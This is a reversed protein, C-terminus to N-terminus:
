QTGGKENHLKEYALFFGNMFRKRNVESMGPHNRLNKKLDTFTGEIMNNTNPMEPVNEFTFLWKLYYSISIMASRLRQHTYFEKDTTPNVTKENLFQKWRSKWEQFQKTFTDKNSTKLGYIINLLEKGAELQPNKTLKRRVIAVMHFQCMQIPYEGLAVFLKQLGDIVIGKINYGQESIHRVADEYDSIHEHAIHAMYLVRGSGAELALLVGTNRGFYTADLHVMGSGSISPQKWEQVVGKLLRKVTSPSTRLAESIEAVTQKHNLYLDWVKESTPRSKGCFQKGCAM